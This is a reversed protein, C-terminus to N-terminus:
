PRSYRFSLHPHSDQVHVKLGFFSFFLFLYFDPFCLIVFGVVDFIHMVLQHVGSLTTVNTGLLLGVNIQKILCVCSCMSPPLQRHISTMPHKVGEGRM